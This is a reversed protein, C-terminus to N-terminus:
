SDNQYIAKLHIHFGMEEQESSQTPMPNYFVGSVYNDVTDSVFSYSLLLKDALPKAPSINVSYPAGSSVGSVYFGHYYVDQGSVPPIIGSVTSTISCGSPGCAIGSAIGSMLPGSEQLVIDRTKTAILDRFLDLEDEITQLHEVHELQLNDIDTNVETKFSNVDQQISVVVSDAYDEAASRLDGSTISLQTITTYLSSLDPIDDIHLLRFRPYDDPCGGQCNEIPGAFFTRSSQPILKINQDVDGDFDLILSAYSDVDSTNPMFHKYQTGGPYSSDDGNNAQFYVGVDGVYYGSARIRSHYEASDGGVDVGYVGLSKQISLSKFDNDWKLDPYYNIINESEWVAIGKNQPIPFNANYGSAHFVCHTAPYTVFVEKPGSNFNINSNDANSSKISRRNLAYQETNDLDNNLVVFTGSGVEYNNGDTIAYFVIDGHSYESSFPSFGNTAGALGITGSGTSFTLEKIRDNPKIINTV